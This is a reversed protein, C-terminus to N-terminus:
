EDFVREERLADLAKRAKPTLTGDIVTWSEIDFKV